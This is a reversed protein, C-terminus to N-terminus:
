SINSGTTNNEHRRNKDYTKVLSIVQGFIQTSLRNIEIQGLQM